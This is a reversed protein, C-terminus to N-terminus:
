AFVDIVFIKNFSLRLKILFDVYMLVLVYIDDMFDYSEELIRVDLLEVHRIM